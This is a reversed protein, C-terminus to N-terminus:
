FRKSQISFIVNKTLTKPQASIDAFDGQEKGEGGSGILYGISRRM